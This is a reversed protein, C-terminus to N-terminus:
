RMFIINDKDEVTMFFVVVDDLAQHYIVEFKVGTREEVFVYYHNLNVSKGGDLLRGKVTTSSYKGTPYRLVMAGGDAIVCEGEVSHVGALAVEGNINMSFLEFRGIVFSSALLVDCSECFGRENAKHGM